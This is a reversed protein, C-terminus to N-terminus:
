LLDHPMVELWLYFISCILGTVYVPRQILQNSIWQQILRLDAKMERDVSHHRWRESVSKWSCCDCIFWIMTFSWCNCRSLVSLTVPRGIASRCSFSGHSSNTFLLSNIEEWIRTEIDNSHLRLATSIGEMGLRYTYTAPHIWIKQARATDRMDLTIGYFRTKKINTGDLWKESFSHAKFRLASNHVPKSSWVSKKM